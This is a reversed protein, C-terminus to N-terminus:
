RSIDSFWYTQKNGSQFYFTFTFKLGCNENSAPLKKCVNFTRIKSVYYLYM